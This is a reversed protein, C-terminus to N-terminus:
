TTTSPTTTTQCHRIKIMCEKVAYRRKSYRYSYYCKNWLSDEVRCGAKIECTTECYKLRYRRCRSSCKGYIGPGSQGTGTVTVFVGSVLIVLTLSIMFNM